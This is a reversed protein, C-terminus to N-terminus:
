NKKILSILDKKKMKIDPTMKLSIMYNILADKTMKNLKSESMIETKNEEISDEKTFVDLSQENNNQKNNINMIEYINDSLVYEKNIITGDYYKIGTNLINKIFIDNYSFLKKENNYIPEWVNNNKAFLLFPRWPDIINNYYIIHIENTKFDFILFNIKFKAVILEYIWINSTKDKIYKNLTEKCIFNSNINSLNNIFSMIKNQEEDKTLTLFTDDILTLFSSYFSINNNNIMQLVGLRFFNGGFIKKFEDPFHESSTMSNKNNEFSKNCLYKIIMNYNIEM